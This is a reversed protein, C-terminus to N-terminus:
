SREKEAARRRRMYERQYAIRDFGNNAAVAPPVAVKPQDPASHVAAPVPAAELAAVRAELAELRKELSAATPITEAMFPRRAKEREPIEPVKLKPDQPAQSTRFRQALNGM